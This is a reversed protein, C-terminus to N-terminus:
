RGDVLEFPNLEDVVGWNTGITPAGFDPNGYPRGDSGIPRAYGQVYGEAAAVGDLGRAEDVLGADIRPRAEGGGFQAGLEFQARGRVAVDTGAYLGSFLDDFPRSITDTLTVVGAVFGVGIAVALFTLVYRGVHGRLDRLSLRLM